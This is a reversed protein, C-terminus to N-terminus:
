YSGLFVKESKQSYQGLFLCSLKEDEEDNAGARSDENLRGGGGTVTQQPEKLEQIPRKQAPLFCGNQTKEL